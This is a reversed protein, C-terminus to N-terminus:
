EPPPWEYTFLKGAEEPTMTGGAVEVAHALVPDRGTELDTPQPFQIDDPKVGHHEISKGDTMILNAITINAGYDVGSSFFPFWESEMVYGSSLDGIVTGRKELQMVRAFIESASASGSDVLVIVKGPYNMYHETKALTPTTKKRKVEDFVKIDNDFFMGVFWKMTDVYGGPDERLDFITTSANVIKKQMDQLDAVDYRFEPFKVIAIDGKRVVQMRLRHRDNDNQRRMENWQNGGFRASLASQQIVKAKVTVNEKEGSSYQLELTMEERPDLTRILYDIDFLNQRTPKVGDLTLIEAGQRVNKAAADSGPEVRTVFCRSWVTKYQLGYDLKFPKYPPYFRKHADNLSSVAAAVQALAANLSNSEEIKLKAKARAGEWDVGKLNPDFYNEQIGKMTSDLIGLARERDTKSITGPVHPTPPPAPKPAPTAAAPAPAPAANPSSAPAPQQPPPPVSSQGAAAPQQAPTAASEQAQLIRTPLLTLALVFLLAAPRRM